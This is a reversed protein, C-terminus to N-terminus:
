DDSKTGKDEFVIHKTKEVACEQDPFFQGDMTALKLMKDKPLTALLKLEGSLLSNFNNQVVGKLESLWDSRRGRGRMSGLETLTNLLVGAAPNNEFMKSGSSAYRLLESCHRFAALQLLYEIDGADMPETGFGKRVLLSIGGVLALVKWINGLALKSSDAKLMPVIFQQFAAFQNGVVNNIDFFLQKYLGLFLQDFEPRDLTEASKKLDPSALLVAELLDRDGGTKTDEFSNLLKAYLPLRSTFVYSWDDAFAERYKDRLKLIGCLKRVWIDSSECANSRVRSLAEEYRWYPNSKTKSTAKKM